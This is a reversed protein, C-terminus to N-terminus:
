QRPVVPELDASWVWGTQGTRTQVLVFGEHEAAMRVTEAEPLEFLLDGMPVPSVRVPTAGKIVVADHLMPWLAVGNSVTLAVLATGVLVAARRIWRYPPRSRVRPHLREGPQSPEGPPAPEGAQLRHGLPLRHRFSLRGALLSVGVILLGVLGTWALTRPGAFRAARDFGTLSEPPLRSSERAYRLNAEIDPDNPVLLSAREYNLVAM